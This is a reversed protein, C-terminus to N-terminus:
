AGTADKWVALFHSLFSEKVGPDAVHFQLVPYHRSQMPQGVICTYVESDIRFTIQTPLQDYTRVEVRTTSLKTQFAKARNLAVRLQERFNAPSFGMQKGRAAAIESEPNLTLVRLRLSADREVAAAIYDWSCREQGDPLSFLWSLNTTLIDIRRRAGSFVEHLRAYSRDKFCKVSYVPQLRRALDENETVLRARDICEELRLRLTRSLEELGPQGITYSMYLYDRLHACIDSDTQTILLVDKNNAIAFGIEIHVNSNRGTVDAVIIDARRIQNEVDKALKLATRRTTDVRFVDVKVARMVDEIAKYVGNSWTESFPMAVLCKPLSGGRCDSLDGATQETM